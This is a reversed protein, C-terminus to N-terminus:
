PSTLILDMIKDQFESELKIKIKDVADKIKTQSLNLSDKQITQALQISKKGIPSSYFKYLSHLEKSSYHKHYVKITIERMIKYLNLNQTIEEKARKGMRKQLQSFDDLMQKRGSSNPVGSLLQNILEPNNDQFLKGVNSALQKSQQTIQKKNLTLNAIKTLLTKRKKTLKKSSQAHSAFSICLLILLPSIIKM